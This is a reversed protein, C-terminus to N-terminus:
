LFKVGFVVQVLQAVFYAIFIIIFGIIGASIKGYGSKSKAPDGGATMLGIGGSIIMLLMALGAIVYVYPLAANVVSGLNPFKNSVADKPLTIAM